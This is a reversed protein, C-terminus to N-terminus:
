ARSSLDLQRRTRKGGRSGRRASGSPQWRVKELSLRGRVNFRVGERELLLRQTLEGGPVARPSCGGAANVVRHWPLATASPLAHLAYGVQRAQGPLGALEAVQGYTAVRGRPIRRVVAYIRAYSSESV